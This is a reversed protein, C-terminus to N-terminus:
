PATGIAAAVVCRRGAAQVLHAAGAATATGAAGAAVLLHRLRQTSAVGASYVLASGSRWRRQREFTVTAFAGNLLRRHSLSPAPATKEARQWRWRWAPLPGAILSVNTCLYASVHFLSSTSKMHAVCAKLLIDVSTSRARLPLLFADCAGLM